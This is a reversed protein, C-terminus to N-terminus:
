TDCEARPQHEAPTHPAFYTICATPGTQPEPPSSAFSAEATWPERSIASSSFTREMERGAIDVPIKPKGFSRAARTIKEEISFYKECCAEPTLNTRTTTNSSGVAFAKVEYQQALVALQDGRGTRMQTLLRM